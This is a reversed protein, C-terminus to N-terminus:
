LMTRLEDLVIGPLCRERVSLEVEGPPVTVSLTQDSAVGVEVASASTIELFPSAFQNLAVRCGQASTVLIELRHIHMNRAPDASGVSVRTCGEATIFPRRRPVRRPGRVTKPLYEGLTYIDLTELDAEIEAKSYRGYRIDQADMAFWIQYATAAVLVAISVYRTRGGLAALRAALHCDILVVVTTMVCLLRWPFGLFMAGPVYRYFPGSLPTQLWLCFLLPGILIWLTTWNLKPRKNLAIGALVVLAAVTARGIEVSVGRWQGGWDFTPDHLYQWLPRMNRLPSWALNLVSLNFHRGILGIALAYPGAMVAATAAGRAFPKVVEWTAVGARRGCVLCGAFVGAVILAMFYFIATHAYFMLALSVGLGVGGKRDRASRLLADFTWPTLMFATFEATSGRVLWDTLSYCSFVVLCAGLFRHLRSGGVSAVARDTGWLGVLMVIFVGVKVASYTSGTIVALISGLTNFLRHYFFPLANGHGQDAFVTWLPFWDGAAYARRFAEIREFHAFYEHNRPWGDYALGAWMGAIPLPLYLLPWLTRAWSPAQSM